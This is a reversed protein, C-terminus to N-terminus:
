RVGSLMEQEDSDFVNDSQQLIEQIEERSWPEGNIARKVRAWLGTSGPGSTSPPKDNM